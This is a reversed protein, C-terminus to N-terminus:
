PNYKTSLINYACFLPDLIYFLNKKKKEQSIKGRYFMKVFPNLLNFLNLVINYFRHYHYYYYDYYYYYYYCYYHYYHQYNQSFIVHTKIIIDTKICM